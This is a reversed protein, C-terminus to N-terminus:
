NGNVVVSNMITPKKNVNKFHAKQLDEAIFKEDRTAWEVGPANLNTCSAPIQARFPKPVNGLMSNNLSVAGFCDYSDVHQDKSAMSTNASTFHFSSDTSRVNSTYLMVPTTIDRVREPTFRGTENAFIESVNNPLSIRPAQPYQRIGSVHITKGSKDHTSQVQPIVTYM